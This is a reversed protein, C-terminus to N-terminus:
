SFTVVPPVASLQANMNPQILDIGFSRAQSVISPVRVNVLPTLEALSNIYTPDERTRRQREATTLGYPSGLNLKNQINTVRGQASFVAAQAAQIVTPNGGAQASALATNANDLSLQATTLESRLVNGYADGQQDYINTMTTILTRIDRKVKDLDQQLRVTNDRKNTQEQKPKNLALLGGALAAGALLTPINGSVLPQQQKQQRTLSRPLTRNPEDPGVLGSRPAARPQTNGQQATPPLNGPVTLLQSPDYPDRFVDSYRGPQTAVQDRSGMLQRLEEETFNEPDKVGEASAVGAQSASTNAATASNAQNYAAVSSTGYLTIDTVKKGTRFDYRDDLPDIVEYQYVNEATPLGNAQRQATTNNGTVRRGDQTGGGTAFNDMQARPSEGTPSHANSGTVSGNNTEVENVTSGTGGTRIDILEAVFTDPNHHAKNTGDGAYFSQGKQVTQRAGRMTYPVPISAFEKALEICFKQANELESSGLSKSKFQNYKRFRSLRKIMMADQVDATYRTQTPDLTFAKSEEEVIAKLMQYKGVASSWNRRTRVIDSQWIIVEAVTKEVLNIESGGYVTNYSKAEKKSCLNLVAKDQQTIPQRAM